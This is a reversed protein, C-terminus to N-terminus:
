KGSMREGGERGRILNQENILNMHQVNLTERIEITCKLTVHSWDKYHSGVPSYCLVTNICVYMVCKFVYM